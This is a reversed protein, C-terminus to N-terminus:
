REDIAGRQRLDAVAEVQQGLWAAVSGFTPFRTAMLLLAGLAASLAMPERELMYAIASLFGAGELPALGFIMMGQRVNLLQALFSADQIEGAPRQAAQRLAAQLPGRSMAAPIVFSVGVMMALVGLAVYTVIPARGPPPPLNQAQVAVIAIFVALGMMLAAAIIQMVKIRPFLAEPLFM